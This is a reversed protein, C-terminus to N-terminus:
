KSSLGRKRKEHDVLTQVLPVHDLKMHNWLWTGGWKEPLIFYPVGEEGKVRPQYKIIEFPDDSLGQWVTMLILPDTWDALIYGSIESKEWPLTEAIREAITIKGTEIAWVDVGWPHRPVPLSLTRRRKTDVKAQDDGLIPPSGAGLGGVQIFGKLGELSTQRRSSRTRANVLDIDTHKAGSAHHSTKGALPTVLKLIYLDFAQLVVTLM